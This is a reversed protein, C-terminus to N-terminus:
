GIGITCKIAESVNKLIGKVSDDITVPASELGAVAAGANGMDTQVWRKILTLLQVIM